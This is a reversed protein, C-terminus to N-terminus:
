KTSTRVTSSVGTQAQKREHCGEKLAKEQCDNMIDIGYRDQGIKVKTPDSFGNKVSGEIRCGPSGKHGSM